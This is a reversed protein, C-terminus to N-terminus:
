LDVENISLSTAMRNTSVCVFQVSHFCIDRTWFENQSFLELQSVGDREEFDFCVTLLSTLKKDAFVPVWEWASSLEELQSTDIYGSDHPLRENEHKVTVKYQNKIFECPGRVKYFIHYSGTPLKLDQLSLKLWCIANVKLYTLYKSNNECQFVIHQFRQKDANQWVVRNKSLYISFTVRPLRHLKRWVPSQFQNLNHYGALEVHKNTFNEAYRAYNLALDRYFQQFEVIIYGSNLKDLMPMVDFVTRWVELPIRPLIEQLSVTQRTGHSPLRCTDKIYLKPPPHTINQLKVTM